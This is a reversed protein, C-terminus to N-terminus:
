NYGGGGMTFDIMISQSREEYQFTIKSTLNSPDIKEPKYLGGGGRQTHNM